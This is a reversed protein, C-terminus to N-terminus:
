EQDDGGHATPPLRSRFLFVTFAASPRGYPEPGAPGDSWYHRWRIRHAKRDGSLRQHTPRSRGLRTRGPGHTGDRHDAKLHVCSSLSRFLTTYPFLTSIPPRRIIHDFLP